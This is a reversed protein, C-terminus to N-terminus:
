ALRANAFNGYLGEASDIFDHLRRSAVIVRRGAILPIRPLDTQVLQQFRQYLARRRAPDAESQAAELAQDVEANAYRAGNSFAVGPQFNKSWYWRQTGIAPDPGATGGIIATDFDRRTYIRNVFEGFDQLRVDVRVGIRALASRLYQATLVSELGPTPDLRLTLRLGNAGRRLGAADLLAEAKAPAYDYRPVDASHFEALSPPIPSDAVQGHGHYISDLIFRRDIAHAFARRVRVDQLAPRELNFELANVNAAFPEDLETVALAPHQRLRAISALTTAGLHIEGTELAAAVSAADPVIRFHLRELRPRPADWYDTNRALEIFSGRRRRLFRFPGTGIPAGNHPNLLPNSGAYLHRPVVQSETSSLASLLYPAPKALRLVATLPDPTEVQLVNAFTSRGRANYKKWIEEVSFAVDASTFPQGDHWRVGPRLALTVTRGDASTTWRTALRPRPQRDRADFTLLGDFIKSSLTYITGETTLANTLSQPDNTLAIVLTGQAAGPSRAAAPAGLAAPVAPALLLGAGFRRRNLTM